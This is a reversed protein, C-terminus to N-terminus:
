LELEDEYARAYVERLELVERVYQRTEPFGIRGGDSALWEDVNRQGANYAALALREDEYKRLLRRLYFAGYRVNIEPDVLDAVVFAKGGTHVAIGKATSPLLQMLGVAGSRSRAEADFKSERYIVAALLAPDLQYNRAHGVIVHEYALPYRHKAYWAPKDEELYFVGAGLAALATVAVLAYRM